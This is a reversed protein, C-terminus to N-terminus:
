SAPATANDAVAGSGPPRGGAVASAFEAREYGSWTARDATLELDTLLEDIPEVSGPLRRRRTEDRLTRLTRALTTLVAPDAAGARRIPDYARRLHAVHTAAVTVVRKGDRETLAAAMPREWLHLLVDALHAIVDRATTPDNVGPSLARVAIDTLQTIGFGFDQQLTRTDGFAFANVLAQTTADSMADSDDADVLLVPQDHLVYSGVPVVVWGSAGEPLADLLTDVDIQQV